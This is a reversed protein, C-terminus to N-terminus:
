IIIDKNDSAWKIFSTTAALYENYSILDKVFLVQFEPDIRKIYSFANILANKSKREKIHIKSFKSALGLCIAYKLDPRKDEPTEVEDPNMLILDLNPMNRYIKLFGMFESAFGEGAAGQILESEIDKPPNNNLISGVFFITRPCPSNIMDKTPKFDCLMNPKFRIFAMLESPMDENIAWKVWDDTDVEVEIISHFRSKIPELLGQVAAHDQRRNTAAMFLVNANNKFRDLLSMFSAQVNASAQGFDDLLVVIKETTEQLKKLDGFPVFEAYEGGNKLHPFGKADTPDSISPYMILNNTKLEYCAQNFIETKGIGPQGVLLVRHNNEIAFKLAVILQSPRM